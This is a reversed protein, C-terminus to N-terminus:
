VPRLPSLEALASKRHRPEASGRVLRLKAPARFYGPFGGARLPDSATPRVPLLPLAALSRPAFRLRRPAPGACSAPSLQESATTWRRADPCSFLVGPGIGPLGRLFASSSASRRLRGEFTLGPARFWQLLLFPCEKMVGDDCTRPRRFLGPAQRLLAAIKHTRIAAGSGPADQLPTNGQSKETRLFFLKPSRRPEKQTRAPRSLASLDRWSFLRAFRVLGVCACVEGITGHFRRSGAFSSRLFPEPVIALQLTYGSGWLRACLLACLTLAVLAPRSYGASSAGRLVAFVSGVSPCVSAAASVSACSGAASDVSGSPSARLRSEISSRTRGPSTSGPSSCCLWRQLIM